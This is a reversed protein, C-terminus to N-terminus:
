NSASNFEKYFAQFEEYSMILEKRVDLRAASMLLLDKDTPIALEGM